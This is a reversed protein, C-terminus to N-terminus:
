HTGLTLKPRQLSLSPDSVKKSSAEQLARNYAGPLRAAGTLLPCYTLILVWCCTILELLGRDIATTITMLWWIWTSLGPSSKWSQLGDQLVCSTLSFVLNALLNNEEWAARVKIYNCWQARIHMCDHELELIDNLRPAITAALQSLVFSNVLIQHLPQRYVIRHLFCLALLQSTCTTTSCLWQYPMGIDIFSSSWEISIFFTPQLTSLKSSSWTTAM